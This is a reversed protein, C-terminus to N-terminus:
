MEENINGQASWMLLQEETLGNTEIKDFQTNEPINTAIPSYKPVQITAEPFAELDISPAQIKPQPVISFVIGDIQMTRVDNDRCLKLLKQLEKLNEIKM